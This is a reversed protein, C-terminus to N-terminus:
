KKRALIMKMEYMQSTLVFHYKFICGARLPRVVRRSIRRPVGANGAKKIVLGWAYKNEKKAYNKIMIELERRNKGSSESIGFIRDELDCWAIVEIPLNKPIDM